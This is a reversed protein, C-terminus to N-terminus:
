RYGRGFFSMPYYSTTVSSVPWSAPLGTAYSWTGGPYGPYLYRWPVIAATFDVTPYVYVQPLIAWWYTGAPILQETIAIENLGAVFTGLATGVGAILACLAFALRLWPAVPGLTAEDCQEFGQIDLRRRTERSLEDSIPNRERESHM